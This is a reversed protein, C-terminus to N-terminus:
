PDFVMMIFAIRPILGCLSAWAAEAIARVRRKKATGEACAM